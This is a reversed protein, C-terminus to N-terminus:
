RVDVAGKQGSARHPECYYRYTGEEEFTHEFTHGEDGVMESEFEGNEHTVTHAGGEGTWEWVVTTGADVAIAPPDYEFGQPGTGNMVTVESEGTMDLTGEYNGVDDFWDGYDPEDDVFDGDPEEGGSGGNGNPDDDSCGALSVAAIAGGALKLVTRRNPDTM